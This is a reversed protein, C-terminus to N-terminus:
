EMFIKVLVENQVLNDFADGLISENFGETKMVKAYLKNVDLQNKSLNQFIFVVERIKESL